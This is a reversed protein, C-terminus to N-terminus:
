YGIEGNNDAVFQAWEANTYNYTMLRMGGFGYMISYNDTYNSTKYSLMSCVTTTCVPICYYKELFNEELDALIQLKVENSANAYKGTGAMCGSWAQWTMTDEVGDVTLTLTEVTPDWCGAEHLDAYDPDCYVQFMTFPYFAAGGWAGWGIAYVGSAVDAYRNTINDIGVLEIKGFGTDAMADNLYKNLLTVQQNDAASMAGKAWGVQIKIDAGATYLGAEVLETLAKKFLETAETKNYGNISKYAEELTAYPTGEGYAVNYLNCIAQMAEETNRYISAPDEYVDYFYLPSLMSYAAKYGATAGVFESRDLALSMAKRFNENSLVVSNTNGEQDMAQLATLGTNFFLRMTYTEDVKYLQESTSYKVADDAEVTWDDLEGALFALKAQDQEMVDIVVKQTLYQPQKKGDVEFFTESYLNGDDGVKYEWYKENQVFVLQKADELSAMKYAGYSMTTDKSTGYTTGKYSGDDNYQKCSEYLDKHVIWNSTCSTLFYYYDYAVECVYRITYEDVKYLGVKDFDVAEVTDGTDYFLFEKYFEENVSGDANYISLGFPACFGDMLALVADMNDATVEVYGDANPTGVANYVDSKIYGNKLMWNFTYSSSFTTAATLNIYIKNATTDFSYDPTEGQGYAPVVAAFIPKGQNYYANAGALASEGSYYNNARYNQLKPDLLQQMSYIYTDANIVTGDEWVLGERLSIEFVYDETIDAATKGDPLVVNYKTLDGQNAATVDKIDTAAVFIWQYEGTTSDKVTIDALPTEIYSMITSDGSMEWTHPNWNTGLSTTYTNYTYTDPAIGNVGVKNNDPTTSPNTEAPKCAALCSAVMVFVLLLALLKKM